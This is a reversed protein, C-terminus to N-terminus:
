RARLRRVNEERLSVPHGRVVKLKKWDDRTELYALMDAQYKFVKEVERFVYYESPARKGGGSDSSEKKSTKKM